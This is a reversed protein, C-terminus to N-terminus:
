SRGGILTREQEVTGRLNSIYHREVMQERLSELTRRRRDAPADAAVLADWEDILAGLSREHEEFMQQIPQAARDLQALLMAADAGDQRAERVGDLEENLTFVEELLAAPVKMTGPTDTKVSPLGELALLYEIRAHEDRLTRYADNLYSSRELSALRETTAANHFFDPHFQRSLQRFRRDLDRQDVRLRRSLGLFRFYDGHRDMALIRSCHPCFHEDVPAGAGCSGCELASVSRVPISKLTM